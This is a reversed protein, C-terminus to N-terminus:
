INILLLVISALSLCISMLYIILVTQKQTLGASLLRYHMQSRDAQYIPKGALMRKAVVYLNDIIPVGLALVPILVSVATVQKFAGDLAIVGLMFGIFTAGADGMYIKAPPKNFILYGLTAGVLLISMIASDIQGKSLAIIFLTIAAIASIGGSLGDLGDMFNIVTTVGFIWLITLIFQLWTPLFVMENTFPNTFGEFTIGASFAIAAAAVQVILKPWAAFDKAKTKYWDDILGIGIILLSGILIAISKQNWDIFALYPIIFGLFIAISALHPVPEIHIKRSSPRDVFDLNIALKRLPPILAIVTLFSCISYLLYM